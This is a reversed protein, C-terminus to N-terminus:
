RRPGAQAVLQCLPNSPANHIWNAGEDVLGDGVTITNLRGGIRDRGEVVLVECGEHHLVRAASLGAAGAGIVVVKADVDTAAGSPVGDSFSTAPKSRRWSVV